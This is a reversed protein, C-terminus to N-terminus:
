GPLRTSESGDAIRDPGALAADLGSQAAAVLTGRDIGDWNAAFFLIIGLGVLVAGLISLGAVLRGQTRDAVGSIPLSYRGLIARAQAANITGSRQWLLVEDPLRQLFESDVPQDPQNDTTM